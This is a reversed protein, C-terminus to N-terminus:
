SLNEPGPTFYGTGDKEVIFVKRPALWPPPDASLLPAELESTGSDTRKRTSSFSAPLGLLRTAGHRRRSQVPGM